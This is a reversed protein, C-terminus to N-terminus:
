RTTVPSNWDVDNHPAAGIVNSAVRGDLAADVEDTKDLVATLATLRLNIEEIKGDLADIKADMKEELADIKADQTAFRAEMKEELADFRRDISAELAILRDNMEGFRDNSTYLSYGFLLVIMPGIIALLLNDTAAARLAGAAGRARGPQVARPAPVGLSSPEHMSVATPNAAAASQEAEELAAGSEPEDAVARGSPEAPQSDSSGTM